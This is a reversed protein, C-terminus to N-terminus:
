MKMGSPSHGLVLLLYLVKIMDATTFISFRFLISEAKFLVPM